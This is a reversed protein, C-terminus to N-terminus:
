DDLPKPTRIKPLRKKKRGKSFPNGSELSQQFKGMWLFGLVLIVLVGACFILYGMRQTVMYPVLSPLHGLQIFSNSVFTWVGAIMVVLAIALGSGRRVRLRVDMEEERAPDGNADAMAATRAVTEQDVHGKYIAAAGGWLLYCVLCSSLIAVSKLSMGREVETAM